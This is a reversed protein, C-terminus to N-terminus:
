RNKWLVIARWWAQYFNALPQNAALRWTRQQEGSAELKVRLFVEHRHNAVIRPVSVQFPVGPEGVPLSLEVRQPAVAVFRGSTSDIFEVQATAKEISQHGTNELTVELMWQGSFDRRLRVRKLHPEPDILDVQV